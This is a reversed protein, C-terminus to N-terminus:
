QPEKFTLMYAAFAELAPREFEHMPRMGYGVLHAEYENVLRKVRDTLTIPKPPESM